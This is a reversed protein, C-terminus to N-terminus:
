GTSVTERGKVCVRREDVGPLQSGDRLSLSISPTLELGTNTPHRQQAAMGHLVCVCGCLPADDDAMATGVVAYRDGVDSLTYYVFTDMWGYCLM